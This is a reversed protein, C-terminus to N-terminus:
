RPLDTCTESGDWAVLQADLARLEDVLVKLQKRKEKLQEQLEEKRELDGEKGRSECSAEYVNCAERLAERASAYRKGAEISAVDDDSRASVAELLELACSAYRRTAEMGSEADPHLAMGM